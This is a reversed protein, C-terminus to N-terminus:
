RMVGIWHLDRIMDARDPVAIAHSNLWQQGSDPMERSLVIIPAYGRRYLDRAELPREAFTGAFVLIADPPQLSDEVYLFRGALLFIALLAGTGALCFGLVRSSVLRAGPLCFKTPM